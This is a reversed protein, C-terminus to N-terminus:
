ALVRVPDGALWAAVDEVAETFYTRYNGETVYGLHPTALVNPLSRLEHDPPVPEVDYVDLGAGAIRGSRLADVLAPTDVLGARSTNVLYASRRMAGLEAAGVIGRTAAALVLHLSVVDSGAFLEEKSVLRADAASARDPTLHPSWAAVDMGFARAVAAVRTGIKGLGLLGLTAGALDSGVTSQWPGGTRFATAEPVLGRALGLVLAWTLEVPPTSRSATGCVTIGRERCAALDISANRMGTTVVLRLGPLRAILEATLPTRERMVVVVEADGVAAAVDEDDALHERVASVSLDTLMSWDGYSTAVGQYDDLIVCRM